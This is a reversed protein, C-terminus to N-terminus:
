GPPPVPPGGALQDLEEQPALPNGTAEGFELPFGQRTLGLDEPVPLGQLEPPIGGGMPPTVPGGLGPGGLGPGGLGPGGLGPGGLGPPPPATGAQAQQLMRRLMDAIRPPLRNLIQEVYQPPLRLLLQIIEEPSMNGIEQSSPLALPPPLPMDPEPPLPPPGGPPLGPLEPPLGAEAPPGVNGGPPMGGLEPLPGGPPLGGPGTPPMMEPGPPMAPPMMQEPGAPGPPPGMMQEPGPGPPQGPPMNPPGAMPPPGQPPMPPGQPPMPPGAPPAEGEPQYSPPMVGEPMQEDRMLTGDPMWHHGPPPPPMLDTNALITQWEYKGDKEDSFFNQIATRLRWIRLEDSSLAEELMVRAEEDQPLPVGVFHDRNTQKSINGTEALRIGITQQQIQDQPVQPTVVVENEYVGKIDKKTLTLRYPEKEAESMGWLTVGKATAFEEVIALAFANVHGMSLQISELFNKIRGKAADSLISVGYGAQLDGPAQGYLVGPFTAQQQAGDIQGFVRDALPVNPSIEIIDVKTGWPAQVQTGPAVDIDSVDDGFENQVMRMPWFHWLLGTAMQSVLRCQYEWSGVLPHLISLGDWSDDVSPGYDGVGCIIPIDPYDTERPGPALKEHGSVYEDDAFLCNWVKGTDEDFWWKDTIMVTCQDISKTKGGSTLKNRLFDGSDSTRLSPYRQLAETLSTEYRHYAFITYYPGREIGVNMPDLPRIMIPFASKRLKKPLKDRIWKVEVAHKGRVLTHLTIRSLINMSQQQNLRSWMATLWREKLQANELSEKNLMDTPPVNIKPTGSILRQALNVVNFPTPLTVQEQGHRVAEELSRGFGADGKWMRDWVRAISRYEEMTEEKRHIRDLLVEKTFEM